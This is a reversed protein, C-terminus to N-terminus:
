ARGIKVTPRTGGDIRLHGACAFSGLESQVRAPLNYPPLATDLADHLNM